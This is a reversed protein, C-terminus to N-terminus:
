IIIYTYVDMIARCCAKGFDQDEFSPVKAQSTMKPILRYVSVTTVYTHFIVMSHSFGSYFWQAM